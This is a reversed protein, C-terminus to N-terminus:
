FGAAIYRHAARLSTVFQADTDAELARWSGAKPYNPSAGFHSVFIRVRPSLQIVVCWELELSSSPTRPGICAGSDPHM